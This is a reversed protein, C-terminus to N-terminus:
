TLVATALVRQLSEILNCGAKILEGKPPENSAEKRIDPLLAQDNKKIFIFASEEIEGMAGNANLGIIAKLAWEVAAILPTVAEVGFGGANLVQSMRQKREAQEMAKRAESLKRARITRSTESETAGGYLIHVGVMPQLIGQGILRQITDYTARDLVELGPIATTAGFAEKLLREALPRVSDAETVVAVLHMGGDAKKRCELAALRNGLRAELDQTFVTEPPIPSDEVPKTQPAPPPSAETAKEGMLTQLRSIFAARGSPLKINELDGRGDLVGDALQQKQALTDIMRHEISDESVLNIVQVARTQHKRWARAIRQELKAPNWPLDLNIVVNAAQLNLGTAGSDTSLFLRCHPDQKFRNIEARRKQQPVSGTHWAFDVKMERALDRVLELMRSWESFVIIKSDGGSLIDQFIEALEEIKPAIRCNADLIYPTDCVMRMCSLLRQLKELEDPSLPRRKVIAILKAVKEEFESYRARQEPDMSIFYNKVTREPLQEEVQDKRRRLMIPRLRRHLEPLNKLGKPRGMEDLDYFERNFRFLSGFISPDLFQALSYVEDIRNELPTGTLVFAYPSALQKITQATKTQWNKIRQAEDLIIVDPAILRNMDAVDARAQEYNTLYFFSKEQYAKLRNQRSGWIVKAPLDTFKAIQEEWEAKLSAPSVVLVREIGRLQRLLECAAVAQVTKGLGMEDALLVREGFALHLMGETQYPYLKHRVVDMSRKGVRVDTMFNEKALVRAARGALETAWSEVDSSLRACLHVKVTAHQWARILAPVASSPDGLLRGDAGFFPQFFTKVVKPTKAPLLLRVEPHGQRMLYAEALFPGSAAAAAFSRASKKRLRNMVAEIHKCTGLGNVRFDPCSCTNEYRDLTRIEVCYPNLTSKARVTFRSYYPEKKDLPAIDMAETAARYQRMRIEDEDTTAWGQPAPAKQLAKKAHIKIKKNMGSIETFGCVYWLGALPEVDM